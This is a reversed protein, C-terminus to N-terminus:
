GGGSASKSSFFDDSTPVDEMAAAMQMIGGQKKGQGERNAANHMM